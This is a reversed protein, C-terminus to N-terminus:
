SAPDASKTFEAVLLWGIKDKLYDDLAKPWKYLMQEKMYTITTKDVHLGEKALCSKLETPSFHRHYYGDTYFRQASKFTEGQFIKGRLLLAHIGNQFYRLSNRNYVMIMGKGGPKLVRSVQRFAAQTDHSHHLVGWSFVYDFTADPFQLREADMQQVKVNLGYFQTIASAGKVAAETLDVAQVNAGGKALLCSAGGFGCGIELVDKGALREYPFTTIYSSCTRFEELYERLKGEVETKREPSEWDEYTMPLTEWWLRNREQADSSSDAKSRVSSFSESEKVTKPYKTKLNPAVLKKRSNDQSIRPARGSKCRALSESQEEIFTFKAFCLLGVVM